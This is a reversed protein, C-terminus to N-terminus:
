DLIKESCWTAVGPRSMIQEFARRVHKIRHPMGSLYLAAIAMIKPREASEEYLCEFQDTVRRYMEDSPHNQLAKHM